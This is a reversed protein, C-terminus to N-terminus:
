KEPTKMEERIKNLRTMHRDYSSGPSTDVGEPNYRQDNDFHDEPIPGYKDRYETKPTPKNPM